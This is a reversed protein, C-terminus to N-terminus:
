SLRERLNDWFGLDYINKLEETSRVLTLQEKRVPIPRNDNMNMGLFIDDNPLYEFYQGHNDTYLEGSHILDHINFWKQQENTTMGMYVLKFSEFAFWTVVIDLLGCILFLILENQFNEFEDYGISEDNVITQILNFSIITAYTLVIVNMILFLYFWKYNGKGVCNNIWVCHHDFFVICQDCIKCHKSRAPKLVKCTKCKQDNFFILNNNKYISNYYRSNDSNLRVPKSYIAIILSLILITLLTNYVVTNPNKIKHFM